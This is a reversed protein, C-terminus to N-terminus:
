VVQPRRVGLVVSGFGEKAAMEDFMKAMELCYSAYDAGTTKEYSEQGVSYKKLEGPAQAASTAKLRWGKAAAAYLNGSTELLFSIYDESLGTDSATGGTPITENLYRRLTVVANEDVVM